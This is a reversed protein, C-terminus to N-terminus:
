AATLCSVVAGAPAPRGAQIHVGWALLPLSLSGSPPASSTRDRGTLPRCPSPLPVAPLAWASVPPCLHARVRVPQSLIPAPHGGLILTVPAWQTLPQEDELGLDRQLCLGQHQVGQPPAPFTVELPGRQGGRLWGM